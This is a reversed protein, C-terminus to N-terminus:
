RAQKRLALASLMTLVPIFLALAAIDNILDAASLAKTFAGVSMHMYYSTPWLMGMIRSGGELTSVPQLLGSFQITPMMTLIATGFVAAMQSSTFTSVLFGIGTTTTLYVLAGATLGLASGKLPVQFVAVSLMTLLVFNLMGAAIYPLQKGLIYELRKSPTVYFNTISGLEKERVVSVAMLIAPLLMLLIPPISPVMAYISKFSPNYRYRPEIRVQLTGGDGGYQRSVGQQLFSSHVGRIYGQVTEARSPNSGDFWASVESPAGRMLNRGFGPPIEIALAIDNTTLRERIQAENLIVPREHFYASGSISRIYARSEPTQDLDFAAFRIDDVDTTIGFGFVVMLIISGAFAFVLRVPDRLIELSERRCYAFLRGLRFSSGRHVIGAPRPSYLSLADAQDKSADEVGAEEMLGIFAEELNTAHRSAILANPEDCALVRGAHMLSIRDCRMAENMFHTSIFITVKEKRSLEILLDWFDDRAVPDVGSTPEDLILMEPNHIIAVALSLRQRLGLPLQKALHDRHDVLGFRDILDNVRTQRQDAPLSFLRAHLLLNEHVSLEGYLSFSQSMYGVRRRAEADGARVSRGFLWAEGETAPLMGTLMKMTTTKGCGNSGLFGFIEGRDIGFSVKDVATFTGFRRTLDTAVIVPAEVSAPPPPIMLEHRHGRKEEPLLAVFVDELTRKGTRSKLENPAGTALVKAGDMAMLWDFQDAEEMYATSILVSMEPRENRIARILDWFQRRSLPDVGTTPEDLILLDPEHMLACCLGLKQKMGGSLKGSPREIFPALGTAKLLTTSRARRERAPQGFLHGFFDLNEAVSLEAYLNSGLGQPMYAIRSCVANRHRARAMDGGLVFVIGTQIKRAGAILGLMTSKGVGDPGILGAMCGSPIDVAVDVLARTKGYLHTVGTLAAASSTTQIM